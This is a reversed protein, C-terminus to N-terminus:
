NLPPNLPTRCNPCECLRHGQVCAYHFTHKCPTHVVQDVPTFSDLCISCETNYPDAADQYLSAATEQVESSQLDLIDQYPVPNSYADVLVAGVGLLLLGAKYTPDLESGFLEQAGNSLLSRCHSCTWNTGSVSGCRCSPCLSRLFSFM